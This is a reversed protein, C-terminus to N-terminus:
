SSSLINRLLVGATGSDPPTCYVELHYVQCIASTAPLALDSILHQKPTLLLLLLSPIIGLQTSAFNELLSLAPNTIATAQSYVAYIPASM